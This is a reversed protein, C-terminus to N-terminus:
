SVVEVARIRRQLYISSLLLISGLVTLAYTLEPQRRVLGRPGAATVPSIDFCRSGIIYLDNWIDILRWNPSYGLRDVFLAALVPCVALIIIWIMVLPATRQVASAIAVVAVSLVIAMAGGYGVIGRLLQIHQWAYGEEMLLSCELFLILAPLMTMLASFLFVAGIKGLLYHWRGLPKALYFALSDHRYDNGIITAGALALVVMVYYGQLFFFNRYTEVDGALKLDKQITTKVDILFRSVMSPPQGQPRPQDGTPRVSSNLPTRSVNNAMEEVDIQSFLYIGFFFVFFTMLALAYLVWFLKQRFVMVLAIRSIPWISRFSSGIKGRWPRYGLQSLSV